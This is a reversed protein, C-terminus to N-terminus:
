TIPFDQPGSERERERKRACVIGKKVCYQVHDHLISRIEPKEKARAIPRARQHKSKKEKQCANKQKSAYRIIGGSCSRAPNTNQISNHTHKFFYIRLSQFLGSIHISCALIRGHKIGELLDIILITFVLTNKSARWTDYM